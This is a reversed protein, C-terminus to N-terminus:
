AALKLDQEFKVAERVHKLPVEFLDAVVAASGEVDVAEALTATPVYSNKLIPQGFSFKPHVIVNPAIRPRPRWSVAEGAPDYVVDNKLSKMVVPHMEYNKSRLDYINKIGNQRGIEAVIKRGDTKFVTTTAFPHPHRLSDRADDMISRIENLRVGAAAFLAIFRLEM